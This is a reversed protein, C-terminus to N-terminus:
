FFDLPRLLGMYLQLSYLILYLQCNSKIFAMHKVNSQFSSLIIYDFYNALKLSNHQHDLIHKDLNDIDQYPHQDEM